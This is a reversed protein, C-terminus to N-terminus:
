AIFEGEIEEWQGIIDFKKHRHGVAIGESYILDITGWESILELHFFPAPGRGRM